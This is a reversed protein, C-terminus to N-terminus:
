SGVSAALGAAHNRVVETTGEPHLPLEEASDDVFRDIAM